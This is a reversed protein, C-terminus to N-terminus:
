SREQGFTALQGILLEIFGNVDRQREKGRIGMEYAIERCAQVRRPEELALLEGARLGRKELEGQLAERLRSVGAPVETAGQQQGPDKSKDYKVSEIKGGSEFIGEWKETESPFDYARMGSAGAVIVGKLDRPLRKVIFLEPDDSGVEFSLRGREEIRKIVYYRLLEVSEHDLAVVEQWGDWQLLVYHKYVGIPAPHPCLGLDALASCLNEDVKSFDIRKAFGDDYEVTLHKPQSM